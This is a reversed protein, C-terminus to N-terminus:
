PSAHSYQYGCYAMADGRPQNCLLPSPFRLLFLYLVILSIGLAIKLLLYSPFVDRQRLKNICPLLLFVSTFLEALLKENLM